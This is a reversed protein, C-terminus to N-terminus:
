TVNEIQVAIANAESVGVWIPLVKQGDLDRLVVIPMNTTPDVMLGKITMQIQMHTSGTGASRILRARRAFRQAHGRYDPGDGAPWGSVTRRRFQRDHQRQHPRRTGLRPSRQPWRGAGGRHPR